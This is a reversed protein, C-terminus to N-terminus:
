AGIKSRSDPSKSPRPIRRVRMQVRLRGSLVGDLRRVAEAQMTPMVNEWMRRCRADRDLPVGLARLEGLATARRWVLEEAPAARGLAGRQGARYGSTLTTLRECFIKHDHRPGAMTAWVSM